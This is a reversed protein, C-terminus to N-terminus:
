SPVYKAKPCLVLSPAIKFTIIKGQAATTDYIRYHTANMRLFFGQISDHILRFITNSWKCTDPGDIYLMFLFSSDNYSHFLTTTVDLIFHLLYSYLLNFIRPRAYKFHM